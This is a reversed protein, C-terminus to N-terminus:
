WNVNNESFITSMLAFLAKIFFCTIFVGVGVQVLNNILDIFTASESILELGFFDYLSNFIDM